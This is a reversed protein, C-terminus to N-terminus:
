WCGLDDSELKCARAMADIFNQETWLFLRNSYEIHQMHHDVSCFLLWLRKAHLLIQFPGANFWEKMFTLSRTVLGPNTKFLVNLM